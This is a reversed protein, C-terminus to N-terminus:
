TYSWLEVISVAHDMHLNDGTLVYDLDMVDIPLQKWAPVNKMQQMGVTTM